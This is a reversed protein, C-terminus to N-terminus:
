WADRQGRQAKVADGRWQLKGVLDAFDYRNAAVPAVPSDDNVVILVKAHSFNVPPQDLWILNAGNLEASYSRLM